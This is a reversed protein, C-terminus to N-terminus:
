EKPAPTSAPRLPATEPGGPQPPAAQQLSLSLMKSLQARTISLGPRFTGDNYGGILRGASAAEVYGYSWDNVPVDTFTPSDPFLPAWNLSLVLMKAAQARTVPNNPRFSGDSYGTIVRQRYVTEVYRYFTSGYPVDGFSPRPPVYLAWGFGVTLMKAFQGRTSGSAPRFTGDAYGSIAGRCYLDSIYSYAWYSDPLDSFSIGCPGPTQTPLPSPTRTPVPRPTSTSVPRPTSTPAPPPPGSSSPIWMMADFWVNRGSEGTYDTLTVQATDGANWRFKGVHAWSGDGVDTISKQSVRSIIMGDASYVQYRANETDTTQNDVWPVFAYLDYYGSTPLQASWTGSNVSSSQDAVSDTVYTNSNNYGGGYIAWYHAQDIISPVATFGPDTNDVLASRTSDGRILSMYYSWNWNQGPDVHSQNPVQYHGIIHARDKKIGYRDAINRALASSAQYMAETYWGQQNMFGEHEIGISKVNYDWVGAQYATNAERVMQTIQGDSSRIVYQSSVGSIPNQFWNIASAYSGETDHIIIYSLPGYPRGVTYNNSDAPVWLAPGYDPSQPQPGASRPLAGVASASLTVVEGSALQARAGNQIVKFVEDAYSQRVGVDTAGSYAEVAGYWATLDTIKEPSLNLKHSIDSLLAAGAEINAAADVKISAPPLSTLIAARQLTGGSADVLHMIGFGNDLSPAGGRQEWHSEVYGIGMLVQLPVGWEKAAESFSQAVKGPGSDDQAKLPAAAVLATVILLMLIASGLRSRPRRLAPIVRMRAKLM